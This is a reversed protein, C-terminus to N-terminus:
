NKKESEGWFHLDIIQQAVGLKKLGPTEKPNKKKKKQKLEHKGLNKFRMIRRDPKGATMREREEEGKERLGWRMSQSKFAELL